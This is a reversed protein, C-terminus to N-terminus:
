NVRRSCAENFALRYNNLEDFWIEGMFPFRLDYSSDSRHKKNVSQNEAQAVKVGVQNMAMAIRQIWEAELIHMKELVKKIEVLEEGARKKILTLSRKQLEKSRSTLASSMRELGQRVNMKIGGHKKAKVLLNKIKAIERELAGQTQLQNLLVQDRSVYRPVQLAMEGLSFLEQKGKKFQQLLATMAKTQGPKRVEMLSQARQKFRQKFVNLSEAAGFYDCTKLQALANLFISEPGVHAAFSELLLSNIVAIVDQPEGKAMYSWALEERATFWYESNQSVKQYYQIAKDWHGQSYSLRGATLAILGSSAQNAPSKLLRNLIKASQTTNGKTALDLAQQLNQETQTALEIDRDFFGKWAPSWHAQATAWVPHGAPLAKKWLNKLKNNIAKPNKIELLTEVGYVELGNEFLLYAWRAKGADTQPFKGESKTLFNLINKQALSFKSVAETAVSIQPLVLLFTFLLIGSGWRKYYVTM